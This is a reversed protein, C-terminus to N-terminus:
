RGEIWALYLQTVQAVALPTDETHALMTHLFSRGTAVGYKNQAFYDRLGAFFRDDGMARRLQHLFVAGKGYIIDNYDQFGDFQWLASGVPTDQRPDVNPGDRRYPEWTGGVIDEFIREGQGQGLVQEGYIVSSYNAFSEDLWAERFIDDGVLSFWWQHGVEHATLFDRFLGGGNDGTPGVYILGPYEIGGGLGPRLVVDFERFPYPGFTASYIDISKAAATLVARAEATEDAPYIIRVRVDGAPAEETRCAGCVTAAFERVPGARFRHTTTGDDNARAEIESGSSVVTMATPATLDVAYFSSESFVRDPFSTVERHWGGADYVALLPYFSQFYWVDPRQSLNRLALAFDLTIEVSTGPALPAALPVVLTTNADEYRVTVAQGGVQVGGVKLRAEDELVQEDMFSSPFDPYLRLLIENLAQDETNVVRLREHGWLQDAAPDLRLALQYRPWDDKGALDGAAAPRLVADMSQPAPEPPLPLSAGPGPTALAAPFGTQRPEPPPPWTPPPPLEGTVVTAPPTETDGIGATPTPPVVPTAARTAPAPTPTRGPELGPFPWCGVTGLAAALFFLFLLPRGVRRGRDNAAM